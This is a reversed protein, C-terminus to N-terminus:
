DAREYSRRLRLMSMQGHPTIGEGNVVVVEHGNLLPVIRLDLWSKISSNGAAMRTYEYDGLQTRRPARIVIRVEEVNLVAEEIEVPTM